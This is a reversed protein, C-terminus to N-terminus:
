AVKRKRSKARVPTQVSALIDSNKEIEQMMCPLLRERVPSARTQPSTPNACQLCEKYDGYLDGSIHMDGACRPCAKFLLM